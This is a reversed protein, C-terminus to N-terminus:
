RERIKRRKAAPCKAEPRAHFGIKRRAPETCSIM